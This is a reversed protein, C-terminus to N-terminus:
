ADEPVGCVLVLWWQFAELRLLLVHVVRHSLKITVISTTECALFETLEARGLTDNM